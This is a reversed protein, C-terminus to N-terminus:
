WYKTMDYDHYVYLHRDVTYISLNGYYNKFNSPPDANFFYVAGFIIIAALVSGVPRWWGFVLSAAMATLVILIHTAPASAYAYYWDWGYLVSIAQGLLFMIPVLILLLPQQRLLWIGLLPVVVIVPNASVFNGVFTMMTTFFSYGPFNLLKMGATDQGSLAALIFDVTENVTKDLRYQTLTSQLHYHAVLMDNVLKGIVFAAIAAFLDFFQDARISRTVAAMFLCRITIYALIFYAAGATVMSVTFTVLLLVIREPATLRPWIARDIYLWGLFLTAGAYQTKLSTFMLSYVPFGTAIAAGALATLQDFSWARIVLYTLLISALWLLINIVEISTQLGVHGGGLRAILSPLFGSTYIRDVSQANQDYVPDNTDLFSHVQNLSPFAEKHIAFIRDGDSFVTQAYGVYYNGAYQKYPLYFYHKSFLLEWDTGLYSVINWAALLIILAFVTGQMIRPSSASLPLDRSPVTVFPVIGSTSAVQWLKGMSTGILSKIEAELMQQLKTGAM